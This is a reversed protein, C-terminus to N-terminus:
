KEDLAHHALEHRDDRHDDDGHQQQRQNLAQENQGRVQRRFPVPWETAEKAPEEHAREIPVGPDHDEKVAAELVHDAVGILGRQAQGQGM